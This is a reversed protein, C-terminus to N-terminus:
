SWQCIHTTLPFEYTLRYEIYRFVLIYFKNNSREQQAVDIAM